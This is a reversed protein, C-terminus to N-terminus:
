VTDHKEGFHYLYVDELRPSLSKAYESPKKEAIVRLLCRDHEITLNSVNPQIQRATDAIDVAEEWIKGQMQMLLEAPSATQLLTGEKLLIVNKAIAEIDSVIHTALLVIKNSSLQSIMNRFRIREKPDLGATPEDLILLAPDNLLAQAIGLRQRMGGSYQGILRHADATLNVQELLANTKPIIDKKPVGKMKAIYRLFEDGRFNPYFQPYQPLYGIQELYHSNSHIPVSDWYVTGFTPKLLNTIIQILTTKGAGNPGLLGYVGSELTLSIEKLATKNRYQMTINKLELKM